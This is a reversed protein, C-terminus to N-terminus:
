EYRRFRTALSLLKSSISLGTSEAADINIDFRVKNDIIRFEIIGGLETFGRIDSVTLVPLGHLLALAAGLQDNPMESIFVLECQDLLALSELRRVALQTDRVSKGALKDLLEGFPDDGFVCLTFESEGALNDPWTVFSTFNYLFAAKIRYETSPQGAIGSFAPMCVLLAAALAPIVRSRWHPRRQRQRGNKVPNRM